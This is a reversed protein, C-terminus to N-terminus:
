EVMVVNRKDTLLRIFTNHVANNRGHRHGFNDYIHEFGRIVFEVGYIEAAYSDAADM